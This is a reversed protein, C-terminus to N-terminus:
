SNKTKKLNHILFQHAADYGVLVNRVALGDFYHSKVKEVTAAPGSVFYVVVATAM